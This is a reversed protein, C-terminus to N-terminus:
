NEGVTQKSCKEKFSDVTDNFKDLDAQQKKTRPPPPFFPRLVERVSEYTQKCSAVRMARVTRDREANEAIRKENERILTRNDHAIVSLWYFGTAGAATFLVIWVLLVYGQKIKVRPFRRSIYELLRTLPM